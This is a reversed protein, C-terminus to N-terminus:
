RHLYRLSIALDELNLSITSYGYSSPTRLYDKIGQLEESWQIEKDYRSKQLTYSAEFQFQRKINLRYDITTGLVYSNGGNRKELTSFGNFNEIEELVFANKLITYFGDITL